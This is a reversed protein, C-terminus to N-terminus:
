PPPAWAARDARNQVHATQPHRIAPDPRSWCWGRAELAKCVQRARARGEGERRRKWRRKMKRRKRRKPTASLITGLRRKLFRRRRRRRRRRRNGDRRLNTVCRREGKRGRRQLLRLLKRGTGKEGRGKEGRRWGAQPQVGGERAWSVQRRARREWRRRWV